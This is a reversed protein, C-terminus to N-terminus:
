WQVNQVSAPIYVFDFKVNVFANDAITVMTSPIIVQKLGASDFAHNGLEILGENLTVNVLKTCGQFAYGYIRQLSDPFNITTLEKCDFFAGENIRTITDPLTVTEIESTTFSHHGIETIRFGDWWAPVVVDKATGHYPEYPAVMVLNDTQGLLVLSEVCSHFHHTCDLTDPFDGYQSYETFCVPELEALGCSLGDAVCSKVNGLILRPCDELVLSDGLFPIRSDAM